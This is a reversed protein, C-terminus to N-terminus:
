EPYFGPTPLRKALTARTREFQKDSKFHRTFFKKGDFGYLVANSEVVLLFREKWWLRLSEFCAELMGVFFATFANIEAWLAWRRGM